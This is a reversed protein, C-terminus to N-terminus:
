APLRENWIIGHLLRKELIDLETSSTLKFDTESFSAFNIVGNDIIAYVVSVGSTGSKLKADRAKLYKTRSLVEPRMKSEREKAREARMAKKTTAVHSSQFINQNGEPAKLPSLGRKLASWSNFIDGFSPFIVKSTNLVAIQYDPVPPNRKSFSSAPKWIDFVLDYRLDIPHPLRPAESPKRSGVLDLSHFVQTYNLYATPGYIYQSLYHRAFCGLNASWLTLQELATRGRDHGSIEPYHLLESNHSAPESDRVLYGLRKLLAFVQYKDIMGPDEAFALSQIHSLTLNQMREVAFEERTDEIFDLFDDNQMYVILSGREVLYVTEIPSLWMGQLKKKNKFTYANGVDKFFSGKAHQILAKRKEPLWVAVLLQKVHHGRISRLAMYMQARANALDSEQASTGDQDFYKESRKPLAEDHSLFFRDSLLLSDVQGNLSGWDQLSEALEDSKSLEALSEEAM